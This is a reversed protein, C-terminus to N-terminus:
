LLFHKFLYTVFIFTNLDDDFTTCCFSSDNRDFLNQIIVCGSILDLQQQLTPELAKRIVDVCLYQEMCNIHRNFKTIRTFSRLKIYLTIFNECIKTIATKCVTSKRGQECIKKKWHSPIRCFNILSVAINWLVFLREYKKREHQPYQNCTYEDKVFSVQVDQMM